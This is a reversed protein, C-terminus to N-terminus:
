YKRVVWLWKVAKKGEIEEIRSSVHFFTEMVVGFLFRVIKM